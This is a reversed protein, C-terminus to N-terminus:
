RTATRSFDRDLPRGIWRSNRSRDRQIKPRLEALRAACLRARELDDCDFFLNAIRKLCCECTVEDLRSPIFPDIVMVAECKRGLRLLLSALGIRFHLNRPDLDIAHRLLAESVSSPHGCVQAYYGMQYHVEATDPALRGARRCAEMALRPRDVAELGAAVRLLCKADLECTTALNMLLDRSLRHSGVAGYAIALEVQLEHPLPRLWSLQELAEIGDEFEGRQLCAVGLIELAESEDPEQALVYGAFQTALRYRRAALHEAAIALNDSM